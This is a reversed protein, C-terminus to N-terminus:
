YERKTLFVIENRALNRYMISEIIKGYMSTLDYNRMMNKSSVHLLIEEKKKKKKELIM